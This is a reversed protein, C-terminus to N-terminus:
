RIGVGWSGCFGFIAVLSTFQLNVLVVLAMSLFSILLRWGSWEFFKSRAADLGESLPIMEILAKLSNLYPLNLVPYLMTIVAVLAFCLFTVVYHDPPFVYLYSPAISGKFSDFSINQGFTLIGVLAVILYGFCCILTSKSVISAMAPLSKNRLESYVSFLAFTPTYIFAIAPLTASWTYLDWKFIPAAKPGSFANERKTFWYYFICECTCWVCTLLVVLVSATSVYRLTTIKSSGCFVLAAGMLCIYLVLEKSESFSTKGYNDTVYFELLDHLLGVVTKM